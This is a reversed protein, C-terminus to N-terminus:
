SSLLAEVAEQCLGTNPLNEIQQRTEIAYQTAATLDSRKFMKEFESNRGVVYTSDSANPGSYLVVCDPYAMLTYGGYKTPTNRQATLM